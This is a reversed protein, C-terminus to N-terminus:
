RWKSNPLPLRFYHICESQIIKWKNYHSHSHSHSPSRKNMWKFTLTKFLIFLLRVIIRKWEYVSFNTCTEFHYYTSLHYACSVNSQQEGINMRLIHIYCVIVYMDIGNLFWSFRVTFTSLVSCWAIPSSNQCHITFLSCHADM